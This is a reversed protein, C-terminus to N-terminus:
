NGEFLRAYAGRARRGEARRRVRALLACSREKESVRENAMEARKVTMTVSIVTQPNNMADSKSSICIGSCFIKFCLACNIQLFNQAFFYQILFINQLLFSKSVIMPAFLSYNVLM